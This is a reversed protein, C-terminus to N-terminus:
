RIGSPARLGGVIWAVLMDTTEGPNAGGAIVDLQGSRLAALTGLVAAHHWFGQVYSTVQANTVRSASAHDATARRM